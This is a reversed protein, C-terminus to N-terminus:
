ITLAHHTVGNQAGAPMRKPPTSAPRNQLAYLAAYRGQLALLEAQTGRESICGNEIYFIQDASAASKLDHTVLLTTRGEILRGLAGAVAHQNEKDLSATPEDLIVIPADRVAARAIALRQRQGGSLTSGREGLVTAYGDSLTMIFNHANALRAAAEIEDDTADPAGFAINERVSAGFLVSDQLVISIQSRLSQLTFCRIDHGDIEIRGATPEYLRPLLSTLTSKGGGSPGVLAVKQGATIDFNLNRLTSRAEAYSFSVDEFRIHGAFPPAQIAGPIDTIDPQADLIALVREGSAVAKAIRGTYKAMDRMPRFSSKLYSLFVILDGITLIGAQVVRAGYWVVLATALAIFVDVSRELQASLRKARVGEKLSKQNTTRFAAGLAQELGFAHVVRMAGFAEGASTAMLAERKRQKRAATRIRSSFRAMTLAALPFALLSILALQWNIWLMMSLMGVLTLVSILLPLLATVAVEQMRGIDGVLRTLLDGGRARDHYTLSLRLLHSYLENRVQTLVRNGALAMAVTSWYASVARAAVVLIIAAAALAITTNGDLTSLPTAQSITSGSLTDVVFKLPWPELLRLGIGVVMATSAVLILRWQEALQPRFRRVIRWLGPLTTKPPQQRNVREVDLAGPDPVRFGAITLIRGAVVDWTHADAVALYASDGLQRALKPDNRLRLAAAALARVDGPPCLLGSREHAVLDAIQGIDSAIVPLGAAMYELIKLPSFYFDQMDPYPAVAADMAALYAPVEDHSVAGAFHVAHRVKRASLDSELRERGPGDGVILLRMTPDQDYALAFHESLIDLGHWAKLSGVFGITFTGPEHGLAPEDVHHFRAVDVGNPVTYVRGRAAPFGEVYAAVQQSVAILATAAGFTRRAVADAGDRDILGRYRAQEEILPANVELLGPVGSSQAYEMGAYSWLSYREYVLDFPDHERLADLTTQNAALASQERTTKALVKALPPLQVIGVNEFLPPPDGGWRTAFLTVHAGCRQLSRIVEQVHISAGKYGFVPIGPDACVYAIRMM